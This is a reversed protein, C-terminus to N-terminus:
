EPTTGNVVIYYSTGDVPSSINSLNPLAFTSRGDGGFKSSILSFLAPYDTISLVRGDCPLMINEDAKSVMKIEGILYNESNSLYAFYNYSGIKSVTASTYDPTSGANAMYYDLGSLPISATLNPVAFTSTGDGGYTASILSYLNPYSNISLVAGNCKTYGAPTFNYPFLSIESLCSDPPNSPNCTSTVVSPHMSVMTASSIQCTTTDDEPVVKIDTMKGCVKLGAWKEKGVIVIYPNNDVVLVKLEKYNNNSLNYNVISKEDISTIDLGVNHVKEYVLQKLVMKADSVFTDEKTNKIIKGVAPIAIILIIALIVIVALLEILTFARKSNLLKWKKLM